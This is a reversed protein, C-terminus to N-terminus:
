HLYLIIAKLDYVVFRKLIVWLVELSVEKFYISHYGLFLIHVTHFILFFLVNSDKLYNVNWSIYICHSQWLYFNKTSVTAIFILTVINNYSLTSKEWVIENNNEPRHTKKSLWQTKWSTFIVGLFLEVVQKSQTPLSM